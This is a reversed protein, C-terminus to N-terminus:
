AKGARQEQKRKSERFRAEAARMRVWLRIIRAREERDEIGAEDLVSRMGGVTPTGSMGERDVLAYDQLIWSAEFPLEPPNDLVTPM